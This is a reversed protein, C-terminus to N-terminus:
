TEVEVVNKNEDLYVISLKCRPNKENFDNLDKCGISEFDPNNGKRVFLQHHGVKRKLSSM